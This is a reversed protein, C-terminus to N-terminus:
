PCRARAPLRLLLAPATASWLLDDFGTTGPLRTVTAAALRRAQEDGQADDYNRSEVALYEDSGAPLSRRSRNAGYAGQGNAGHSVLAVAVVESATTAGDSDGAASLGLRQTDAGADLLASAQGCFASRRAGSTEALLPTVAYTWPRGYADFADRRQLGLTQWPLLGVQTSCKGTTADRTELGADDYATYSGAATGAPNAPCPLPHPAQFRHPAQLSGQLTWKYALYGEVREREGDALPRSFHLVEAIRLYNEASATDTGIEFAGALTQTGLVNTSAQPNAGALWQRGGAADNIGTSLQWAPSEATKSASGSGSRWLLAGSDLQWALLSVSSTLTEKHSLLRRSDTVSVAQWVIFSTAGAYDVSAAASALGESPLLQVHRRGAGGVYVTPRLSPQPQLLHHARGSKDRWLALRARDTAAVLGDVDSFQTSADAGDLWLVLGDMALIDREEDVVYRGAHAALANALRAQRAITQTAVADLAGASGSQRHLLAAGILLTASLSISVGLLLWGRQRRAAGRAQGKM